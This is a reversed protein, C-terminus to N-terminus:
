PQATPNQYQLCSSLESSHCYRDGSPCKSTSWKSQVIVRTENINCPPGDKIFRVTRIQSTVPDVLGCDLNKLTPPNTASDICYDESSDYEAFAAIDNKQLNRVFEMGQQASKNAINQNKVYNSNSLGSVIAVSTAALIIMITALAVVAEIITQGSQNKVIAVLKM